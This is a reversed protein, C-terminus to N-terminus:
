FWGLSTLVVWYWMRVAGYRRTAGYWSMSLLELCVTYYVARVASTSGMHQAGHRGTSSHRVCRHPATHASAPWYLTSPRHPHPHTRWYRGAGGRVAGCRGRYRGLSGYRWTGAPVDGLSNIPKQLKKWTNENLQRGIAPFNSGGQVARYAAYCVRVAGCRVTYWGTGGRLICCYVYRGTPVGCWGTREPGGRVAADAVAGYRGTCGRVAGYREAGSRVAGNGAGYRKYRGTGSRVARVATGHGYYRGTCARCCM